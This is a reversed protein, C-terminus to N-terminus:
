SGDGFDYVYVSVGASLLTARIRREVETWDGGALGCGIRPMHVSAQHLLAFQAVAALCSELAEYRIPPRGRVKKYGSQAIMNAVVLESEAEVFQVSGLAFDNNARDRYWARYEREPKAWRRSVATVFGRGWGGRDNCIHAIIRTGGDSLSTADGKLFTLTGLEREVKRQEVM